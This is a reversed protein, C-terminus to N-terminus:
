ATIERQQPSKHLPTVPIFIRPGPLNRDRGRGLDPELVGGSAADIHEILRALKIKALEREEPQWDSATARVFDGFRQLRRKVSSKLTKEPAQGGFGAM